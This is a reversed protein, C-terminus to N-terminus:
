LIVYIENFKSVSSLPASTQAPYRGVLLLVPNYISGGGLGAASAVIGGTFCIAAAIYENWLLPWLPKQKCINLKSPEERQCQYFPHLM